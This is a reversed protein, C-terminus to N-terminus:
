SERGHAVGSAGGAQKGREPPLRWGVVSTLKEGDLSGRKRGGEGGWGM